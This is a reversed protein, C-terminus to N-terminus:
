LKKYMSDGPKVDGSIQVTFGDPDKVLFSLYSRGGPNDIRPEL